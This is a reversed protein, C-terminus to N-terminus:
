SGRQPQCAAASSPPSTSAGGCYQRECGDVCFASNPLVVNPALYPAVPASCDCSDDRGLACNRVPRLSGYRTIEGYHATHTAAACSLTKALDRGTTISGPDASRKDAVVATPAARAM